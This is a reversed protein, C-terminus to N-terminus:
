LLNEKTIAFCYDDTFFESILDEKDKASVAIKKM